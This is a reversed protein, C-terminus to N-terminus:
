PKKDDPFTHKQVIEIIPKYSKALAYYLPVKGNKDIAFFNAGLEKLKQIVEPGTKKNSKCKSYFEVALHLITKDEYTKFHHNIFKELNKISILKEFDKQELADQIEIPIQQDDDNPSVWNNFMSNPIM